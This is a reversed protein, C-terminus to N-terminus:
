EEMRGAAAGHLLPVDTPADQADYQESVSIVERRVPGRVEQQRTVVRKRIRLYETIVQRTEVVLREEMVPIITEDPALPATADFAEAPIHEIEVEEFALPVTLVQETTEVGKHLRVTGRQVPQVQAVIQETLLPIRAVPPIQEAATPSLADEEVMYRPLDQASVALTVVTYAVAQETEEGIARVLRLPFRYRRPPDFARVLLAPSGDSPAQSESHEVTGLLGAETRVRAGPLIPHDGM